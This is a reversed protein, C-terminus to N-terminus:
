EGPRRSGEIPSTGPSEMTGQLSDGEISGRVTIETQTGRMDVTINFSFRGGRARGNSIAVTGLESTVEGSLSGQELALSFQVNLTRDPLSVQVDWDGSVGGGPEGRGARGGRGAPPRDPAEFHIGDVFTHKIAASEQFLDQDTVVLNAVKGREISGLVDSVGLIEATTLTAARIADEPALGRASTRRLGALFDQASAGDSYFGFKVGAAQLNSAVAPANVRYRITSTNEEAEPHQDRPKRPYNLSILVPTGSEKLVPILQDAEFGGAVVCSTNFQKCMDLSRQIERERKAPFLLPVDGEIVSQLAELTRDTQPRKLGRRNSRYISWSDRYHIADSLTQRIHAIVGMLSGPYSGFGAGRFSLAMAIGEQVLMEDSVEGNLNIVATTGKFIGNAPSVHRTLVGNNRWAAQDGQDSDLLNAASIHAFYGPGEESMVPAPGGRGGRRGVAAGAAPPAGGIDALADILGPYVFMGDLSIGRAAAPPAGSGVSEILGDRIVVTGNEITQGNGVIITAGTLAYYAPNTKPMSGVDQAWATSGLLLAATVWCLKTKM